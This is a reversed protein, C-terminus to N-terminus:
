WVVSIVIQVVVAAVWWFGLIVKAFYHIESRFIYYTGAFYIIASLIPVFPWGGGYYFYETVRWYFILAFIELFIGILFHRSIFPKM